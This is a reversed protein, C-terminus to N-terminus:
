APPPELPALARARTLHEEITRRVDPALPDTCRIGADVIASAVRGDPTATGIRLRYWVPSVRKLEVVTASGWAVVVSDLRAHEEPNELPLRVIGLPSVVLREAGGRERQSTLLLAVLGAIIAVGLTAALLWSVLLLGAWAQSYIGAAVILLVWATRRVPSTGATSRPVGCLILQKELFPAGCEPCRSPPALGTLCYGCRVCFEPAAWQPDPLPRPM